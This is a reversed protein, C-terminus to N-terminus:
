CEICYGTQNRVKSIIANSTAIFLYNSGVSLSGVYSVSCITRSVGNEVNVAIINATGDPFSTKYMFAEKSSIAGHTFIPFALVMLSAMFQLATNKCM